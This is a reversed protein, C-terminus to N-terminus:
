RNRRPLSATAGSAHRTRDLGGVRDGRQRASASGDAPRALSLSGFSRLKRAVWISCQVLRAAFLNDPPCNRAVAVAVAVAVHHPHAQKRFVRSKKPASCTLLLQTSKAAPPQLPRRPPSSAAGAPTPARRSNHAEAHAPPVPHGSPCPGSGFPIPMLRCPSSKGRCWAAAIRPHKLFSTPGMYTYVLSWRLGSCLGAWNERPLRVRVVLTRSATPVQRSHPVCRRGTGSHPARAKGKGHGWMDLSVV